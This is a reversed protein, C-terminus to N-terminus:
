QEEHVIYDGTQMTFPMKWFITENDPTTFITTWTYAKTSWSTTIFGYRIHLWQDGIDSATDDEGVWVWYRETKQQKKNVLGILRANKIDGKQITATYFTRARDPDLFYGRPKPAMDLRALINSPVRERNAAIRAEIVVVLADAEANTSIISTLHSTIM